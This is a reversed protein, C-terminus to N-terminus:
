AKISLCITAATVRIGSPSVPRRIDSLIALHMPTGLLVILNHGITGVLRVSDPPSFHLLPPAAHAWCSDPLKVNNAHKM